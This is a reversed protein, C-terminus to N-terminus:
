RGSGKRRKLLLRLGAVAAPVVGLLIIIWNPVQYQEGLLALLYYRPTRGIFTAAAYLFRSYGSSISLWRVPDIPIPLFNTVALLLFPSTRYWQELALYTKGSKFRRIRRRETLWGLLYYENLNALATGLAGVAGVLLPAHSKGLWVVLANAPLPVFTNAFSLYLLYSAVWSTDGPVTKWLVALVSCYVAFIAFYVGLHKAEIRTREIDTTTNM